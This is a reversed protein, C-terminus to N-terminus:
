CSIGAGTVVVENWCRRPGRKCSRTLYKEIDLCFPSLYNRVQDLIILKAVTSGCKYYDFTLGFASLTIVFAMSTYTSDADVWARRESKNKKYVFSAASVIFIWTIAMLADTAM